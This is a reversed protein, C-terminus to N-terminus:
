HAYPWEIRHETYLYFVVTMDEFVCTYAHTKSSMAFCAIFVSYFNPFELANALQSEIQKLVVAKIENSELEGTQKETMLHMLKKTDERSIVVVAKPLYIKEREGEDNIGYKVETLGENKVTRAWGAFKKDMSSRGGTTVDIGIRVNEKDEFNIVCDVNNFFDDYLATPYIEKYELEDPRHVDWSNKINEFAEYNGARDQDNSDREWNKNISEFGMNKITDAYFM